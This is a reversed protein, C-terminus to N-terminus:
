TLEGRLFLIPRSKKQRVFIHRIDTVSVAYEKPYDPEVIMVRHILASRKENDM